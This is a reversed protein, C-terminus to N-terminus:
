VYSVGRWDSFYLAAFFLYISTTCFPCHAESRYSWHRPMTMMHEIKLEIALKSSAAMRMLLHEIFICMSWYNWCDSICVILLTNSFSLLLTRINMRYMIALWSSLLLTSQSSSLSYLFLAYIRHAQQWGEAYSPFLSYPRQVKSGIRSSSISISVRDFLFVVFQHIGCCDYDGCGDRESRRRCSSIRFSNVCKRKVDKVSITIRLKKWVLIFITKATTVYNEVHQVDRNNFVFAFEM